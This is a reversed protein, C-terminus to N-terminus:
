APGAQAKQWPAPVFGSRAQYLFGAALLLCFFVAFLSAEAGFEGGALLEPGSLTAELLGTQEIGSVAVGFIGGQVFNWALHIGAVLWLRRTVMYAAALLVGAELAIAASSILTANPNAGHAFGFFLASIGLAMWSGLWKEFLRFLLARFLLEEIIGVMVASALPAWIATFGNFAVVEYYGLLWLTGITLIFLGSGALLGSLFEPAARSLSVEPVPRDEAWRVFLWYAVVGVAAQFLSLGVALVDGWPNEPLLFDPLPNLFSGVVLVPLAVFAFGLLLTVPPIAVIRRVWSRQKAPGESM